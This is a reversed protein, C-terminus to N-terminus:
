LTDRRAKIFLRAQTELKKREAKLKLLTLQTDAADQEFTIVQATTTRGQNLRQQERTLKDVQLKTLKESIELKKLLEQHRRKLEQWQVQADEWKKQAQTKASEYDLAASKKVSSVDEGFPMSFKLAITSTPKDTQSIDNLAKNYSDGKPTPRM